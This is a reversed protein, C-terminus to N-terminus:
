IVAYNSHLCSICLQPAYKKLTVNFNHCFLKKQVDHSKAYLIMVEDLNAAINQTLSLLLRVSTTLM